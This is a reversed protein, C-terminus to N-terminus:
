IECSSSHEHIANKISDVICNANWGVIVTARKELNEPVEEVGYPRVLVIPINHEESANLLDDFKDKNEQYLGALLIIVDIKHFFEPNVTAYSPSISEKWLFDTKSYIKEIFQRYENNKDYGNSVILNYIKNDNEEEFM